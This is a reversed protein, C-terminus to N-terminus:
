RTKELLILGAADVDGGCRGCVGVVLRGDDGCPTNLHGGKGGLHDSVYRSKPDLGAEKEKLRMFIVRFGDLREGSISIIGAVAFGERAIVEKEDGKPQGFTPGTIQGQSTLYVPTLSGIINHGGYSKETFHFGVLVGGEKVVHVFRSGGGGGFIPTKEVGSAWIRGRLSLWSQLGRAMQAARAAEAPQKKEVYTLAAQKLQQRFIASLKAAQEEYQIRWAELKQRGSKVLGQWEVPENPQITLIMPTDPKLEASRRRLFKAADVKLLAEANVAADEMEALFTSQLVAM